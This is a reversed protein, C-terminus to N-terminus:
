QRAGEGASLPVPVTTSGAKEFTFTFPYSLGNTIPKGLTVEATATGRQGDGGAPGEPSCSWRGAPPSAGDGTLAVTGVDSTISVLRDDVDPSNNAAVFILPVVKGPQVFGGSQNALLHINRLAINKANAATGNVASEQDAVQSIQGSGCGTLILGCAALGASAAVLRNSFRTM